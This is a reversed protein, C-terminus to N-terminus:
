KHAQGYLISSVLVVAAAAVEADVVVALSAM